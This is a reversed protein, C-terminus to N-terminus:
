AYRTKKGTVPKTSSTHTSGPPAKGMGRLPKVRARSEFGPITAKAGELMDNALEWPVLGTVTDYVAMFAVYFERDTISGNSYRAELNAVSDLFKRRLENGVRLDEDPIIVEVKSV